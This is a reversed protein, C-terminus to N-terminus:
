CITYPIFYRDQYNTINERKAYELINTLTKDRLYYM